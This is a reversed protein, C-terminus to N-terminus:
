PFVASLYIFFLITELKKKMTHQKFFHLLVFLAPLLIIVVSFADIAISLFRIM